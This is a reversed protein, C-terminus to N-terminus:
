QQLAADVEGEYVPLWWDDADAEHLTEALPAGQFLAIRTWLDSKPDFKCAGFCALKFRLMNIPLCDEGILNDAIEAYRHAAQAQVRRVALRLHPKDLLFAGVSQQPPAAALAQALACVRRAIDLPMEKESGPQQRRLGLRPEAKEESVYWFRHSHQPLDYDLATTWAFNQEILQQLRHVRMAPQVAIQRTTSLHASLANVAPEAELLLAAILEQCDYSQRRALRHLARRPQAARGWTPQARLLAAVEQQLTRTRQQQQADAAHWQTLHRAARTLLQQLRAGEGAGGGALARRLARRRTYVWQHLLLPHTVLFPAMGLGTANGIGLYRKVKEALPVARRPARARAIHEVLDFTFARVLWVALLEAQFPPQLLPRAAIASRDAIGFKGNGYVATTRMLYGVSTLLEQAPQQGAALREVTHNFFRVSKNARCLVLESRHFRGAEQRPVNAALRQVEAANPIGDYLVYTTDWASAIVRDSRQAESLANSFAVLSYTEGGVHVSYVARGYGEASIDWLPRHVRAHQAALARLLVRMFSLRTPFSAGLRALRM